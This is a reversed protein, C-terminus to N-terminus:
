VVSKRDEINPGPLSTDTAAHAWPGLILRKPCRLREITRLSNNTYGDAWGAVIM